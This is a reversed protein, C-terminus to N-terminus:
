RSIWGLLTIINFGKYFWFQEGTQGFSVIFVFYDSAKECVCEQPYNLWFVDKWSCLQKWYSLVVFLSCLFCPFGFFCLHYPPSPVSTIFVNFRVPCYEAWSYHTQLLALDSYTSTHSLWSGIHMRSGSLSEVGTSWRWNSGRQTYPWGVLARVYLFVFLRLTYWFSPWNITSPVNVALM